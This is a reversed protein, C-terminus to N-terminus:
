ISRAMGPYDKLFPVAIGEMNKRQVDSCLGKVYCTANRTQINQFVPSFHRMFVSLMQDINNVNALTVNVKFFIM